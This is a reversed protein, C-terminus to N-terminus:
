LRGLPSRRGRVRVGHKPIFQVGDVPKGLAVAGCERRFRGGLEPTLGCLHARSTVHGRATSKRDTTCRHDGAMAPVLM